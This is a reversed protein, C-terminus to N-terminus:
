QIIVKKNNLSCLLPIYCAGCVDQQTDIYNLKYQAKSDKSKPTQKRLLAKNVIRISGDIKIHKITFPENAETLRQMEGVIQQYNSYTNDM